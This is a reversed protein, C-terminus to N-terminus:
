EGSDDDFLREFEGPEDYMLEDLADDNLEPDYLTLGREDGRLRDGETDGGPYM